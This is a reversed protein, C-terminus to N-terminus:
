PFTVSPNTTTKSAQTSRQKQQKRCAVSTKTVPSLLLQTSSRTRNCGRYRCAYQPCGFRCCTRSQIPCNSATRFLSPPLQTLREGSHAPAVDNGTKEHSRQRNQPGPPSLMLARPKNSGVRTPNVCIQASVILMTAPMPPCTPMSSALPPATIIPFGDSACTRTIISLFTPFPGPAPRARLRFINLTFPHRTSKPGASAATYEPHLSCYRAHVCRLSFPQTPLPARRCYFAPGQSQPGQAGQQPAHCQQPPSTM